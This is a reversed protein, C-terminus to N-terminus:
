QMVTCFSALSWPVFSSLPPHAVILLEETSSAVLSIMRTPPPTLTVCAAPNVVVSWAAATSAANWHYQLPSNTGANKPIPKSLELIQAAPTKVDREKRRMEKKDANNRAALQKPKKGLTPRNERQTKIGIPLLRFIKARADKQLIRTYWRRQSHAQRGIDM